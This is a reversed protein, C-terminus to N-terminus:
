LQKHQYMSIITKIQFYTINSNVIDKIPRLKDTGVKEIANKIENEITDTINVYNKNIEEPNISWKKSIHDEVTKETLNREKSIESITKGQNYLKYTEDITSSTKNDIFNYGFKVLFDETIGDVLWLEEISTPNAKEINSLVNESLFNTRNIKNKDALKNRIKCFKSENKSYKIYINNNGINNGCTIVNGRDWNKSILYDQSIMKEIILKIYKKDITNSFIPRINNIKPSGVGTLTNVLKIIGVNIRLMNVFNYIDKADETVNTMNINIKGVCNDCKNCKNDNLKSKSPFEGNEFYYDIMEQRCMETENLYKRFIDLAKIKREKQVPDKTTSIIYNAFRFDSDNYYLTTTSDLGDRGARGIEQYYTEIDTPIGYNIVYRIDSKDIGMGFSITAVIIIIEGKLFQSHAEEKDESSMGGHYKLCRIGSKNITESLTDCEKRTQVYIITPGDTRYDFNEKSDVNINLNDRKTGGCYVNISETNLFEEMEELVKPTATATVALVPINPFTKRIISLQKYSERFDHSWQSVCHAEDIAFVCIQDKIRVFTDISSVIFEPTCYIISHDEINKCYSESNLCCAKINKNQLHIAQDNMLSILPSVVISIKNMYTAPFQYLISKGGGTPLICFVDKNNIIDEIVEKQPERFENYGYTNKLHNDM